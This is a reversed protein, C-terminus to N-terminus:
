TLSTGFNPDLLVGCQLISANLSVKRLYEAEDDFMANERESDDEERLSSQKRTGLLGMSKALRESKKRQVFSKMNSAAIQAATYHM